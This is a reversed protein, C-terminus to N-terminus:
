SADEGRMLEILRKGKIRYFKNPYLVKGGVTVGGDDESLDSTSDVGLYRLIDAKSVKFRRGVKRVTVPFDGARHLDYAKARSCGIAKGATELNVVSPLAHLEEMTMAVVSGM